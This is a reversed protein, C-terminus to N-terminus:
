AAAKRPARVRARRSNKAPQDKKVQKLSEQLVSVLDIVNGPAKKRSPAPLGKGGAAVKQDILKLLADRYEDHYADPKWKGAM